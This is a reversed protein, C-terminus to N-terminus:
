TTPLGVRRVVEAFRPDSRIPEWRPDQKLWVLWHTREEVGKDLWAFARDKDGLAAHVLAVAYATVYEKKSRAELSSLVQLAERRKGQIGYVYGIGAVTPVWEKLPGTAQYEAIAQEYLRKAQYVRGLFLHALPFQPNMELAKRLEEAAQDQEHSYHLIFGVDSEIPVSLPDLEHARKIEARAEPLRGTATLLYAYWDHATAYNPNLEIARQFEREAGAWDWDFYFKVYALSAHPEALTADLELAKEAAERAKPFVERPTVLSAYGLQTYSDAIGSYAVAYAPDVDLAQQFFGIAKKLNEGGRKNWFYRGKVYAEFAAPDVRRTKALRALEPPSLELRGARAIAQAIESELALVDRLDREYTQAWLHKDSAAEILQATVRVKGDARSVSGEVVADVGLERAIEPLRKKTGRYSMISTRSTIRLGSIRALGAILEETMGDAFYEQNPDGSLNQLPLVALSRIATGKVGGTLRRRLGGVDLAFLLAAALVTGSVAIAAVRGRGVRPSAMAVGSMQVAAASTSGIERLAYTLDRASQFREDPAKELCRTIVRSLPVPIAKGSESPDPPADKLIAAMADATTKGPFARRGTVMEYLVSGFSFIDSRADVQLGRVQEPSMYAASGMVTGPKTQSATVVSSGAEEPAGPQLRALGFDLIKVRGDETLFVNEPKLDRHVIGQAHAAALGDAIAVAIEVAKRWSLSERELRGRLTEGRLLETVSYCAGEEVGFDHIALINPHSLVAVARAEREFRGLAAPDSALHEQLVKVAVERGLRTDRARYVDGMGGSGLHSLIEYPGLRRGVPLQM